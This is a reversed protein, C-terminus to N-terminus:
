NTLLTPYGAEEGTLSGGYRDILDSGFFELVAIYNKIKTTLHSKFAAKHATDRSPLNSIVTKTGRFFKRKTQLDTGTTFYFVSKLIGHPAALIIEFFRM